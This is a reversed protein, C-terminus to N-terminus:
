FRYVIVHSTKFYVVLWSNMNLMTIFLLMLHKSIYSGRLWCGGLASLCYCSINQFLIVARVESPQSISLCYCSINQFSSRLRIQSRSSTIFLLMLHKSIPKSKREEHAYARYVIVHSTKFNYFIWAGSGEPIPYVIVHSTKFYRLFFSSLLMTLLYVIVHSTKFHYHFIQLRDPEQSLCYCSINQFISNNMQVAVHCRYVIVHSTKFHMDM